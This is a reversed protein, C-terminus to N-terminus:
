AAAAQATLRTFVARAFAAANERAAAMNGQPPLASLDGGFEFLASYSAREMLPPDIVDLFAELHFLHAHTCM